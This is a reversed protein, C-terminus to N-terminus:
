RFFMGRDVAIPLNFGVKLREAVDQSIVYAGTILRPEVFHPVLVEACKRSRHRRYAIPDNHHRWDMAFIANFDLVRLQSPHLFRVYDSSANCDTIVVGAIQLVDTSVRLVCVNAADDKRKYLM